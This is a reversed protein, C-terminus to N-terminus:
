IREGCEPCRLETIGRLIYQCRRCRTENNHSKAPVRSWAALGALVGFVHALLLVLPGLRAHPPSEPVIVSFLFIGAFLAGLASIFLTGLLRYPLDM